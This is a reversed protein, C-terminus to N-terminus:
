SARRVALPVAVLALGCAGLFVAQAAIVLADAVVSFAMFLAAVVWVVIVVRMRAGFGVWYGNPDRYKDPLRQWASGQHAELLGQEQLEITGLMENNWFVDCRPHQREQVILNILGLSKTAETDYRVDVHIGTQREFERIIEPLQSM